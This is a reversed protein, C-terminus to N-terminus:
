HTAGQAPAHISVAKNHTSSFPTSLRGRRPPTSQFQCASPRAFRCRPDGGARPRPNFGIGFGGVDSAGFTAGQAPAHISVRQRNESFLFRRRDGGARPRPNFSRPKAAVRPRGSDGGARPRPNFGEYLPDYTKRWLTAGQAPAHISVRRGPPPPLIHPPRGRRPPTSQFGFRRTLGGSIRPRGRRPPTSQFM